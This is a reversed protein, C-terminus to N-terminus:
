FIKILFEVIKVISGLIPLRFLYWHPSYGRGKIFFDPGNGLADGYNGSFDCNESIWLLSLRNVYFYHILIDPDFSLKGRSDIGLINGNLPDWCYKFKYLNYKTEFDMKM